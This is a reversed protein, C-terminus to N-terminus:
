HAATGCCCVDSGVVEGVEDIGRTGCATGLANHETVLADAVVEVAVRGIDKGIGYQSICITDEAYRGDGEVSGQLIDTHSKVVALRQNHSSLLLGVVRKVEGPENLFLM